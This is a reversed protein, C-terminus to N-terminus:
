GRAMRALGRLRRPYRRAVSQWWSPTPSANPADYRTTDHRITDHRITDYRITDYRVTRRAVPSPRRAVLMLVDKEKSSTTHHIGTGVAPIADHVHVRRYSKIQNPSSRTTEPEPQTLDHRTWLQTSRTQTQCPNPQRALCIADGGTPPSALFSSAPTWTIVRPAQRSIRESTALTERPAILCHIV